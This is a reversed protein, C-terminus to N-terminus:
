RLLLTSADRFACSAFIPDRDRAVVLTCSHLAMRETGRLLLYRDNALSGPIDFGGVTVGCDGCQAPTQIEAHDVDVSCLHISRPDRLFHDGLRDNVSAILDEQHGLYKRLM